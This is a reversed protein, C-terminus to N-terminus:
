DIVANREHQNAPEGGRDASRGHDGAVDVDAVPTVVLVEFPERGGEDLEPRRKPSRRQVDRESEVGLRQLRPVVERERRRAAREVAQASGGPGVPEGVEVGGGRVLVQVAEDDSHGRHVVQDPIFRAAPLAWSSIAM